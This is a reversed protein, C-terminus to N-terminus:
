MVRTVTNECQAWDEKREKGKQQHDKRKRNAFGTRTSLLSFLFSLSLSLSLSLLSFFVYNLTFYPSLVRSNATAPKIRCLVLQCFLLPLLFFFSSGKAWNVLSQWTNWLLTFLQVSAGLAQQMRVPILSTLWIFHREDFKARCAVTLDVSRNKKRGEM